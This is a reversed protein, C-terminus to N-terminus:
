LGWIKKLEEFIVLPYDSLGNFYSEPVFFDDIYIM